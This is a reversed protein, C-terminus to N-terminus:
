RDFLDVPVSRAEGRGEGRRSQLSFLLQQAQARRVKDVYTENPVTPAMAKNAMEVYPLAEQGRHQDALAQGYVLYIVAFARSAPDLKGKTMDMEEKVAKEAEEPHGVAEEATALVYLANALYPGGAGNDLRREAMVAKEMM